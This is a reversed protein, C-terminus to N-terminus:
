ADLRLEPEEEIELVDLRAAEENGCHPCGVRLWGWRTGCLGCALRRDRLGEGGSIQAMAAAAGCAPCESRRWLADDRWREFGGLAPTLARAIAAWGLFRVLGAHATPPEGGGMLWAVVRAAEGPRRRLASAVEAVDGTLKPDLGAGALADVAAALVGGAAGAVDLGAAGSGLLPVGREYDEAYADWRPEAGPAFAAAGIAEDVARRVRAMPELWPHAAIWGPLGEDM